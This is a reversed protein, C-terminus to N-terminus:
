FYALLETVAQDSVDVPKCVSTHTTGPIDDAKEDLLFKQKRTVSEDDAFLVRAAKLHPAANDATVQLTDKYLDGLYESGQKIQDVAPFAGQIVAAGLSAFPVGALAESVLHSRLAGKDAPAFLVFRTKSVWSEKNTHADLLLRRTVVAGLSHAVLLIQAYTFPSRQRQLSLGRNVLVAPTDALQKLFRALPFSINGIQASFSDYEYFFLDCDAAKPNGQLMQPFRTWTQLARGAFGHVFVVAKRASALTLHAYTAREDRRAGPRLLDIATERWGAGRATIVCPVDHHTQAAM